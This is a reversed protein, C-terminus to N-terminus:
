PPDRQAGRGGLSTGHAGRRGDRRPARADHAIAGDREAGRRDHEREAALYARDDIM